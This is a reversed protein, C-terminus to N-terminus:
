LRYGARLADDRFMKVTDLSYAELSRGVLPLKRLIDGTLTIIHCGVADAQFVNLLERPSAWVLELAPVESLISVADAMMPVPDRGTDAFRGAFVSVYGATAEALAETTRRVQDLALIATVNLRLGARSLRQILPYSPEARTNTVPIKVYVNAGWGAIRYAQREMEEFEDSFVEFSVPHERVHELIERCFSEYDSVGATRMLTPNTTFGRILPDSALKLISAKDAGDSFLKVRLSALSPGAPRDEALICTAAQSLSMVRAEPEAAPPQEQYKRDIWITRCGAAAGADIDRWRDGVMFSSRLDIGHAAAAKLLLGPQPKRCGCDDADDHECMFIDDLPLRSRLTQHIADVADRTAAGRALDPQNTVVILLYGAAKLRELSPLADEFIQVDAASAPPHPKGARVVARNLVGDRDLFVARKV